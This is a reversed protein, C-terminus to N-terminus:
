DSGRVNIKLGVWLANKACKLAETFFTLRQGKEEM